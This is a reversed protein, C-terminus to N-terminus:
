LSSPYQIQYNGLNVNPINSEYKLNIAELFKNAILANGRGSLHIGDLSYMGGTAFSASVHYNGFRIGGNFVQTIIANLDLFALDEDTATAKIKLNFADTAIKIETIELPILIHKDQLPYTIGYKSLDSPVGPPVTATTGITTKTTLPIYDGTKTHRAKGFTAGLYPALAMLQPNGSAQAAATIQASLDTLSEDVILLSNNKTTSLLELRDGQGFATLIQKMPGILNTNISNITAIDGASASYTKSCNTESADPFYTSPAIPKVAITTFFPLHTIYPINAVVGKADTITLGAVIADYSSDFGVGVAGASPTIPNSGDGGSMAFGLVDNIGIWLSFFTPTQITAYNLVTQTSSTAVRGFYPNATAFGPTVLHICKAGPMGTNNYPGGVAISQGLITTSIGSVSQPGCGNFITRVALQPVQSGGSSFGGLNDNMLPTTFTGGGALAFQQSLISSYANEQGKIFLAGDSLGAAYSDGVSVFKSFDALGATIPEEVVTEDENECAVFSLSVLLLWKFNKIM